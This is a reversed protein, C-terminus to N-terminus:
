LMIQDQWTFRISANCSRQRSFMIELVLIVIENYTWLNKNVLAELWVYFKRRATPKTSAIWRGLITWNNSPYEENQKKKADASSSSIIFLTWSAVM